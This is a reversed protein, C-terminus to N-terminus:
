KLLEKLEFGIKMFEDLDHPKTIHRTIGFDEIQARERSSSSSTLVVIPVSAFEESARMAALIQRGEVKPLNLDLIALDPRNSNAHKGQRYVRALAEEGDDIVAMDFDLHAGELARQLLEVDGPNDEVLLIKTRRPETGSTM